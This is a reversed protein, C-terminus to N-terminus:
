PVKSLFKDVFNLIAPLLWPANNKFWLKFQTIKKEDSQKKKLENELERVKAKLKEKTQANLDEKKNIQSLISDFGGIQVLIKKGIIEAGKAEEPSVILTTDEGLVEVDEEDEFRVDNGVGVRVRAGIIKKKKKFKDRSMEESEM